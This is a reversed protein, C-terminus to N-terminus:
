AITVEAAEQPEKPAETDPKIYGRQILFKRLKEIFADVLAALTEIYSEDRFARYVVPELVDTVPHYSVMDCWQRGTIWLNGQVQPRYADALSEPRDMYGLHVKPSPCKIELIGDDGVFGDPSGGVLRDDRLCFGVQRVDCNKDFAYWNRADPELETGREMFQSKHTDLPEGLMHEAACERLYDVAQASAKCEKPTVIRKFQSCTPIGSRAALWGESGQEHDIIIM